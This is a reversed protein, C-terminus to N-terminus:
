CCPAVALAASVLCRDLNPNESVASLALKWGGYNRVSWGGSTKHMLVYGSLCLWEIVAMRCLAIASIRDVHYDIEDLIDREEGTWFFGTETNSDYELRGAEGNSRFTPRTEPIAEWLPGYLAHIEQATM